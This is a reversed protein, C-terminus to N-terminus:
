PLQRVELKVFQRVWRAPRKEDPVIIQRPGTDPLLPQGDRKDAVLIIRDTFDSDIEAMAFAVQYGDRGTAIVVQALARGKLGSVAVGAAKLVDRVAVGEFTTRLGRDATVITRRELGALSVLVSRGEVVVDISDQGARATHALCAITALAAIWVHHRLHRQM